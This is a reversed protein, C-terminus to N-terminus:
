GWVAVNYKPSDQNVTPALFAEVDQLAKFLPRDPVNGESCQYLFCQLSKFFQVKGLRDPPTWNRADPDVSEAVDELM